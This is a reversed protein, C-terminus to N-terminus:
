NVEDNITVGRLEVHAWSSFKQILRLAVNQFSYGGEADIESTWQEMLRDTEIPVREAVADEDFELRGKFALSLAVFLKVSARITDIRKEDDYQKSM